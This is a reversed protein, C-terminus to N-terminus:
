SRPEVRIVWKPVMRGAPNLILWEHRAEMAIKRTPDDTLWKALLKTNMRNVYDFRPFREAFTASDLIKMGPYFHKLKAMINHVAVYSHDITTLASPWDLIFYTELQPQYTTLYFFDDFGQVAVPGPPIPLNGARPRPPLEFARHFLIFISGAAATTAIAYKTRNWNRGVAGVAGSKEMWKWFMALVVPWGLLAPLQYRDLWVPQVLVSLIWTAIPVLLVMSVGAVETPDWRSLDRKFIGDPSVGAVRSKVLGYILIMVVVGALAWASIGFVYSYPDALVAVDPHEIWFWPKGVKSQERFNPIWPLFALWGFPVALWLAPRYRRNWADGALQAGLLIGSFVFGFLHTLVLAGVLAAYVTFDLATITARRNLRSFQLFALALIAMVLPYHRCETGQVFVFYNSFFAVACGVTAALFGAVGRVMLWSATFAVGMALASFLRLALDSTGALRTWGRLLLWYVPPSGDIGSGVARLMEGTDQSSILIRTLVEDGWLLKKPSAICCVAVFLLTAVLPVWWQRRPFHVPHVM